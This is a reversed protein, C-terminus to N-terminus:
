EVESKRESDARREPVGLTTIAILSAFLYRM